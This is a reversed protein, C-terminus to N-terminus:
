IRIQTQTHFPTHTHPSSPPTPWAQPLFQNELLPSSILLFLFITSPRPNHSSWSSILPSLSPSRFSSSSTVSFFSSIPKFSSSYFFSIVSSHPLSSNFFSFFLFTFSSSCISCPKPSAPPALLHLLSLSPHLALILVAFLLPPTFATLSSPLIVVFYAFPLTKVSVM